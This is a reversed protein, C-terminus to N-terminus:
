SAVSSAVHRCEMELGEGEVARVRQWLHWTAVCCSWGPKGAGVGDLSQVFRCHRGVVARMEDGLGRRLVVQEVGHVVEPEQACECVRAVERWEPALHDLERQVGSEGLHGTTSHTGTKM